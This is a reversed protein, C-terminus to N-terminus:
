GLSFLSANRLQVPERGACTYYDIQGRRKRTPTIANHAVPQLLSLAAPHVPFQAPTLISPSHWQAPHM